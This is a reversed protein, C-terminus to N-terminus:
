KMTYLIFSEVQVLQFDVVMMLNLNLMAYSGYKASHGPTDARGDGGLILPLEKDKMLRLYRDQFATWVSSISPHLYYKQHNQFTSSSIAAVNMDDLFRLVKSPISGSFIHLYTNKKIFFVNYM